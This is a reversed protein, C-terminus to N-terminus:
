AVRPGCARKAAGVRVGAGLGAGAKVEGARGVGRGAEAREDRARLASMGGNASLGPGRTLAAGKRGCRGGANLEGPIDRRNGQARM